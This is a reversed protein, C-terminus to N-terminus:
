FLLLLLMNPEPEKPEDSFNISIIDKVIDLMWLSIEKELENKQENEIDLLVDDKKKKYDGYRKIGKLVIILILSPEDDFLQPASSITFPTATPDSSPNYFPSTTYVDKVYSTVFNIGKNFDPDENKNLIFTSLPIVVARKESKRMGLVSYELVQLV